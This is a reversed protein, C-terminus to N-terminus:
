MSRSATRARSENDYIELASERLWGQSSLGEEYNGEALVWFEAGDRNLFFRREIIRVVTGRRLYALSAGEPGPRDLLHTFSATLVGYGIFDRTLPATVPPTVPLEEASRTCGLLFGLSFLLFLRFVM